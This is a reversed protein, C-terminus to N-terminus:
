ECRNYKRVIETIDKHTYEGTQIKRVLEDCDEFYAAFELKFKRKRVQKFENEEPRKVFFQEEVSRYHMSGMGPAGPASRNTVKNCKYLTVRSGKQVIQYFSKGDSVFKYGSYGFGLIDNPSYSAETGGEKAFVIFSYKFDDYDMGKDEILGHIKVSDNKIIYAPRFDLDKKLKQYQKSEQAYSMTVTITLLIAYIISKM